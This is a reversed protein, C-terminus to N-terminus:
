FGFATSLYFSTSTKADSAVSGQYSVGASWKDTINYNAGLGLNFATAGMGPAKVTFTQTESVVNASVDRSADVYNYSVGLRANLSLKSTVLYRANVAAETTVSTDNQSHVNLAQLPNANTETFGDTKAM